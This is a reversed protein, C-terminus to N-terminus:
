VGELGGRSGRSVKVPDFSGGPRVRVVRGCCCALSMESVYAPGAEFILSAYGAAALTPDLRAPGSVTTDADGGTADSPAPYLAALAARRPDPPGEERLARALAEPALPRPRAALQRAGAHCGAAAAGWVRGLADLGPSGPARLTDLRDLARFLALDCADRTAGYAAMLLTLLRGTADPRWKDREESGGMESGGEPDARDTRNGGADGDLTELLAALLAAVARKAERAAARALRGAEAEVADGGGGGEGGVSAGDGGAGGSPLVALLSTILSNPLARLRLPLPPPMGDECTMLEAFGEQGAAM